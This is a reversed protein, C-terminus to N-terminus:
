KQCQTHNWPSVSSIGRSKLLNIRGWIPEGENKLNESKLAQGYEELMYLFKASATQELNKKDAMELCSPYYSLAKTPKGREYNLHALECVRSSISNSGEVQSAAQEIGLSEQLLSEAEDFKCLDRKVLGLNYACRSHFPKDQGNDKAKTYASELTKESRIYLEQAESTKGLKMKVAAGAALSMGADAESLHGIQTNIYARRYHEEAEILNGAGEARMGAQMYREFTAQNIPNVCATLTLGVLLLVVPMM